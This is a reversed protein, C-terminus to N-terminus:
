GMGNETELKRIDDAQHARQRMGLVFGILAIAGGLAIEFFGQSKAQVSIPEHKTAKGQTDIDELQYTYIRNPVVNADVYRYSDGRLSGGSSLIIAENIRIYPGDPQEARYLNFGVTDIETATQWEIVIRPNRYLIFGYVILGFGALIVWLYLSWTKLSRKYM